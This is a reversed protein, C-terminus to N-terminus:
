PQPLQEAVIRQAVSEAEREMWHSDHIHDGIPERRDPPVASGPLRERIWSALGTALAGVRLHPAVVFGQVYTGLYRRTRDLDSDGGFRRWQVVHALEHTLWRRFKWSVINRLESEGQVYVDRGITVANRAISAGPGGVYLRAERLDAAVQMLPM